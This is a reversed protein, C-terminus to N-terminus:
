ETRVSVDASMGWRLAPPQEDLTVDVTYVVDGGIIDAQPAIRAVRGPLNANLAEVYVSAEQGIAVRAVDRESLDTTIVKMQSLDALTLVPVGPQSMEGQNITRETVTGSFPATLQTNALEAQASQLQAEATSVAAAAAAVAEDRVGATLLDLQAQAARVQAEAAAIQADSGPTLLRELAAEAQRVRAQAATAADADPGAFLADYRAQAAEMNNTAEQLQRSQPLAGADNRWRIQNYATQAQQLAARANSLAAKAAIEEETRPGDYLQGSAARAATLEAQAAAVEEARSPESVQALQARATDVQAQAAAIEQERPGAALAALQAQAQFLQAAAAAVGAQAAADDLAILLAGAEVEDGVAVAAMKVRGAGSFALTAEQDPVIEGSATVDGSQQTFAATPAAAAGSAGFVPTPIPAEARSCASVILAALLLLGRGAKRSM